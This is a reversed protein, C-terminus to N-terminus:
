NVALLADAARQVLTFLNGPIMGFVICGLGLVLMPIMMTKPLGDNSFTLHEQGFFAKIIIPLYYVANLLSSIIIVLAYFPRQADIAGLVLYYKSIFGNFGPLGVMSLAGISFLIMTIPMKFGIGELDSIKRIGTKYIIAGATLFLLSKILAHNVIHLIGGAVAYNNVLAIGLFIYGIQAVSSFALMRKIDEQAIAFLSGAFIALTSLALIVEAIPIMTFIEIGYVSYIIRLLVIAYVKVVVGSLVASSPTPASSHADPLWVHLPFLASKIGFGVIFLALSVVINLPYNGIANPLQAAVFDLNFHGTVMYVLAIAFLILGSGLTSLILYKLSAEVCAKNSKVAIIGCATITTIETFVYINFLDNSLSLGSMAGILLIFLTYYWPQLDDEIEHSLDVKAYLLIFYSIVNIVILMFIALYDVSFEIGWPPQWGGLHYNYIGNKNVYWLTLFVLASNILIVMRVLPGIIKPKIKALLPILFATLLCLVVILVPLHIM